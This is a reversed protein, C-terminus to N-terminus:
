LFVNLFDYFGTITRVTTESIHMDIPSVSMTVKVGEEVNKFSKSFEIDCPHLVLYPQTVKVKSQLKSMIQLGSLSVTFNERYAHRSYDLLIETRFLLAHGATKSLDSFFMIEPKRFQISLSLGSSEESFPTGPIFEFRYYVFMKISYFNSYM